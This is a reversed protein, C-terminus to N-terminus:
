LRFCVGGGLDTWSAVSPFSVNVAARLGLGVNDTIMFDFGTSGEAGIGLNGDTGFPKGHSFMREGVYFAIFPRIRGDVVALRLGTLFAWEETANWRSYSFQIDPSIGSHFQYGGHILFKTGQMDGPGNTSSAALGGEIPRTEARLLSEAHFDEEEGLQDPYPALAAAMVMAQLFM